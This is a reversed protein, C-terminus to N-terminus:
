QMKALARMKQGLEFKEIKGPPAKPLPTIALHRPWKYHLPRL